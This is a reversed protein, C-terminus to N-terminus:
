TATITGCFHDCITTFSGAVQPAPTGTLGLLGLMCLATPFATKLSIIRTM